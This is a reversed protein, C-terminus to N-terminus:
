TGGSSGSGPATNEDADQAYITVTGSLAGETLEDQTVDTTDIEIGPTMHAGVGLGQKRNEWGNLSNGDPDGHRYFTVPLDGTEFWVDVSQTGHNAMRFADDFQSVADPNVGEPNPEGEIERRGVNFELTSDNVSSIFSNTNGNASLKLYGDPDDAVQITMVRDAEVSTFAGSGVAAASGAALSGMGILFKRREMNNEGQKRAAGRGWFRM